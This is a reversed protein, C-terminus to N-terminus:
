NASSNTQNHTYILSKINSQATSTVIAIRNTVNITRQDSKIITVNISSHKPQHHSETIACENSFQDSKQNSTRITTKDTIHKARVLSFPSAFMHQQQDSTYRGWGM